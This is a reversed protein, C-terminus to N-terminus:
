LRSETFTPSGITRVVSCPMRTYWAVLLKTTDGLSVVTTSLTKASWSVRVVQLGRKLAVLRRTTWAVSACEWSKGFEPKGGRGRWESGCLWLRAPSESTDSVPVRSQPNTVARTTVPIKKAAQRKRRWRQTM